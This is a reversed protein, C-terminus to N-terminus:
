CHVLIFPNTYTLSLSLSRILSHTLSNTNTPKTGKQETTPQTTSQVLEISKQRTPQEEPLHEHSSSSSHVERASQTSTAIAPHRGEAVDPAASSPAANPADASHECVNPAYTTSETAQTEAQTATELALKGSVTDETHSSSQASSSTASLTPTPSSLPERPVLDPPPTSPEPNPEPNTTQQTSQESSGSEGATPLTKADGDAEAAITAFDVPSEMRFTSSTTTTSLELAPPASLTSKTEFEFEVRIPTTEVPTGDNSTFTEVVPKEDSEHIAAASTTDAAAADEAHPEHTAATTTMDHSDAASPPSHALATSEAEVPSDQTSEREISSPLLTSMLSDADTTAAADASALTDFELPALTETLQPAVPGLRTVETGAEAEEETGGPTTTEILHPYDATTTTTEDSEAPWRTPEASELAPQFQTTAVQAEADSLSSRADASSTTPAYDSANTPRELDSEPPPPASDPSDPTTTSESQTTSEGHTLAESFEPSLAPATFTFGMAPATTATNELSTTPEIFLSSASSSDSAPGITAPASSDALTTFLQTNSHQDMEMPIESSRKDLTTSEHTVGDLTAFDTEEVVLIVHEDAAVLAALLLVVWQARMFREFALTLAFCFSPCSRVRPTISCKIVTHIKYLQAYAKGDAQM